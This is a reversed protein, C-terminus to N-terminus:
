YMKEYYEHAMRASDFFPLVDRMSQKFMQMWDAQRDYYMPLIETNLIRYSHDLDHLDIDIGQVEPGPTPIVFANHGHQAFEPIWGDYTSFNISGNMAATMGSTGSAERTVVPTNLWIDSGQKLLKSLKLEYGVLVACNEYDRCIRALNNFTNIAGYDMPYPKGAWIIQVPRDADSLLQEFRQVDRTLLDARKYGAFRRAWVITLTNPDFIKGTQDVVEQFLSKKMEAKRKRLMEDDDQQLAATLALDHWYSFNQSNTVHDIECVGDYGSWMKRAVEGHMKSVGNAKKSLRLAGLTLNFHGNEVGTIKRVDELDNDHFFGMKKLLHIDHVENGAEVPTHTTFVFQEKIKALSKHEFYMDFIAPLGHAENLHIRDPEFKLQRLLEAGGRGLLIYQAIKASPVSDYLRHCITQALHDNEPLDTSLFFMPATKFRDPPLYWAKVKVPHKDVSIDFVIGTDELYNYFRELFLVEMSSDQSRIQDYYGYKWLIGVGILNQGLEYASRMHSGALYGLGGSFTKLAQDIGFEMCFYAVKKSYQPDIQYPVQFARTSM